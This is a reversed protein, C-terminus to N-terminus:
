RKKLIKEIESRFTDYRVAGPIIFPDTFRRGDTKVILFGPTGRLGLKVAMDRDALISPIHKQSDM